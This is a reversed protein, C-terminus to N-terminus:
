RMSRPSQLAKEPDLGPVSMWQTTVAMRDKRGAYGVDRAPVGAAVALQRALGESTLM